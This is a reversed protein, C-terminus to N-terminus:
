PLGDGGRTWVPDRGATRAKPDEFAGAPNDQTNRKRRAEEPSMDQTDREVGPTCTVHEHTLLCILMM